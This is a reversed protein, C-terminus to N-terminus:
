EAIEWAYDSITMVSEIGDHEDIRYREGSPVDCIALQAFAGDALPGLEEIVQVLIPDSRKIDRNYWNEPIPEGKIEWYRDIAKQSISFGGYCDNYVVKM